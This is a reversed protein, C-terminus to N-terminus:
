AMGGDHGNIVAKSLDRPNIGHQEFCAVGLTVVKRLEELAAAEGSVTSLRSNAQELYHRMFCIFNGTTHQTEVMSGDPQRHGWRRKQYKRESHLADFVSNIEM